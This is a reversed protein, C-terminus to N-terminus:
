RAPASFSPGSSRAAPLILEELLRYVERNHNVGRPRNVLSATTAIVLDLRPIVFVFQGGYGWAFWAREGALQRNWWFYGYQNGNWPSRGYSGWSDRIWESSLIREGNWVGDQLYLRGFALLDIPRLAMNNGGLYYGRPDRDWTPLQIGMPDFLREQAFRHLSEGSQRALVVGVLHSTGTSYSWCADPPCEVPQDVQYEVWNRSSVWAGYNSFSTTELGTRMTVAHRLTIRRKEPQADDFHEPMLDALPKDLSEILGDQIAIGTLASLITKSASKVNARRSRSMGRFYEEVMLSDRHWILLSNLPAMEAARSVAEEFPNTDGVPDSGEVLTPAPQASIILPATLLGIFLCVTRIRM